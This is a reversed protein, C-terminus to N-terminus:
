AATPHCRPFNVQLMKYGMIKLVPLEYDVYGRRRHYNQSIIVLHFLSREIFNPM